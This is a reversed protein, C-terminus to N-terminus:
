GQGEGWRFIFPRPLRPRPVLRLFVPLRDEISHDPSPGPRDAGNPAQRQLRRIQRHRLYAQRGADGLNPFKAYNEPMVVATLATKYEPDFDLIAIANGHPTYIQSVVGQFSASKGILKAAPGLDHADLAKAEAVAAAPVTAFSSKAAVSAQAPYSKESEGASKMSGSKAPVIKGGPKMAHASATQAYYPPSVVILAALLVTTAILSFSKM